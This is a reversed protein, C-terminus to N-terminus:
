NRVLAVVAAGVDIRCMRGLEKQNARVMILKVNKGLCAAKIKRLVQEEIDSAVFVKTAKNQQLVRLTQKLGVVKNETELIARELSSDSWGAWSTLPSM